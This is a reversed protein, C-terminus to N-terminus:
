FLSFIVFRFHNSAFYKKDFRLSIRIEVGIDKRGDEQKDDMGGNAETPQVNNISDGGERSSSTTSTSHVIKKLLLSGDENESFHSSRKENGPSLGTADSGEEADEASIKKNESIELLKYFDNFSEWASLCMRM